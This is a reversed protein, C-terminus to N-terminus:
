YLAVSPLLEGSTFTIRVGGTNGNTYDDSKVLITFQSSNNHLGLLFNGEVDGTFQKFLKINYDINGKTM